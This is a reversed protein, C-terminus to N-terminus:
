FRLGITFAGSPQSTGQIGINFPGILPASIGGLYFPKHVSSLSSGIGGYLLIKKVGITEKLYEYKKTFETEQQKLNEKFTEEMRSVQSENSEYIEDVTKTGDPLIVTHTTKKVEKEVYKIQTKWKVVEKIVIKDVYKIEEKIEIKVKEPMLFYGVLGGIFFMIIGFGIRSNWAQKVKEKM